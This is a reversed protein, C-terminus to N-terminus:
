CQKAYKELEEIILWNVEFRVTELMKFSQQELGADFGHSKFYLGTFRLLWFYCNYFVQEDPLHNIGLTEEISAAEGSFFLYNRYAYGYQGDNIDLHRPLESLGVIKLIAESKESLVGEPILLKELMIRSEIV